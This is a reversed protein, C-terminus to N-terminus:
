QEPWHYNLRDHSCTFISATTGCKMDAAGRGYIRGDVVAGSWPDHTWNENDGVPLVDMHGNLVLHRGPGGCEFSGVLNPMDEQPAIVRYPLGKQDLHRKIHGAAERTDGPPDPSKAQIFRSLFDILIDRDEDIWGLLVKKQGNEDNM